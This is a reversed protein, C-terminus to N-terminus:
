KIVESSGEEKRRDTKFYFLYYVALLSLGILFLIVAYPRLEWQFFEGTMWLSNASIWLCVAINHFLEWRYHRSKWLIYIAVSLTPIIMLMGGPRFMLAWCADKILWFLIHLNDVIPIARKEPVPKNAM